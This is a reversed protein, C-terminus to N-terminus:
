FRTRKKHLPEGLGTLRWTTAEQDGLQYGSLIVNDMVSYSSFLFFVVVSPCRYRIRYTKLNSQSNTILWM